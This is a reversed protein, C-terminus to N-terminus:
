KVLAELYASIYEGVKKRRYQMIFRPHALPVIEGFWSHKNNLNRLYALNKGEGICFCKEKRLGLELMQSISQEIFPTVSRQLAPVDYYNINLGEKIFGLPSVASIIFRNYFVDPGGFANIMM